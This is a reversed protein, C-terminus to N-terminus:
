NSVMNKMCEKYQDYNRCASELCFVSLLIDVQVIHPGLWNVAM